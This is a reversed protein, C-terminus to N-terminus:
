SFVKGKALRKIFFSAAVQLTEPPESYWSFTLVNKNHQYKLRANVNEIELTDSRFTVKVQFWPRTSM